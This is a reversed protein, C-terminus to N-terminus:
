RQLSEIAKEENEFSAFVTLLKTMQLLDKIRKSPNLLNVAGNRNRLTTYTTILEGLGASDIYSIGGLNFVFKTAGEDLSKKIQNRLLLLPEGSCLKGSMDYVVAGGAVKRTELTLDMAVEKGLVGELTVRASKEPIFHYDIGCGRRYRQSNRRWEFRDQRLKLTNAPSADPCDRVAVHLQLILRTM